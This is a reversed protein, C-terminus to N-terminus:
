PEFDLAILTGQGKSVVSLDGGLTEVMAAVISGGYGSRKKGGKTDLLESGNAEQVERERAEVSPAEHPWHLAEPLGVGDDEVQLRLRGGTLRALRVEIVGTTRKEFAHEFANTVFETLILGLRAATDVPLEVEECHVNLRISARGDIAGITNAVRSLYAGAPVTEADVRAVGAPALEEYLLALSQVRHSLAEFSAKTIEKRSELRIMGVIMALHNKVRHQLERLMTTQGEDEIPGQPGKADQVVSQIGLFALLDGNSNRLPAIVLRNLFRSGDARQNSIDVAAGEGAAIAERLVRRAESDSDDGQLFRCNRGLAADRHFLTTREFAENVFVLPNDEKNPDTLVMAIPSHELGEEFTEFQAVKGEGLDMEADCFGSKQM